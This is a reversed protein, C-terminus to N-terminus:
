GGEPKWGILPFHQGCLCVTIKVALDPFFQTFQSPEEAAFPLQSWPVSVWLSHLNPLEQRGLSPGQPSASTLFESEFAPFVSNLLHIISQTCSNGYRVSPSQRLVNQLTADASHRIPTGSRECM